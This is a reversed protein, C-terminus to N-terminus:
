YQLDRVTFPRRPKEGLIRYLVSNLTYEDIACSTLLEAREERTPDTFVRITGVGPAAEKVRGEEIIFDQRM